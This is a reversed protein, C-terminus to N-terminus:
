HCGLTEGGVTGEQEAMSVSRTRDGTRREGSFVVGSDLKAAPYAIAQGTMRYLNGCDLSGEAPGAFSNRDCSGAWYQELLSM